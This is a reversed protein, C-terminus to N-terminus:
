YASKSEYEQQPATERLRKVKKRNDNVERVEDRIWWERNAGRRRGLVKM